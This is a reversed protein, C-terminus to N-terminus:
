KNVSSICLCSFYVTKRGWIQKDVTYICSSLFSLSLFTFHFYVRALGWATIGWVRWLSESFGGSSTPPVGCPWRHALCPQPYSGLYPSLYVGCHGWSGWRYRLFCASTAKWIQWLGSYRWSDRKEEDWWKNGHKGLCPPHSQCTFACIIGVSVTFWKCNNNENESKNICDPVSNM